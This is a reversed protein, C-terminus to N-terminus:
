DQIKAIEKEYKEVERKNMYRASIPRVLDMRITFSVVMHKGNASEGFALFRQEHDSHKLDEFIYVQLKFFEEIEAKSVGHKENKTANGKDWDFGTFEQLLIKAYHLYKQLSM